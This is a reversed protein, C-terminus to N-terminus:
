SSTSFNSLMMMIIVNMMTLGGCMVIIKSFSSRLLELIYQKNRKQPINEPSIGKLRWLLRKPPGDRGRRQLITLSRQWVIYAWSIIRNDIQPSPFFVVAALTRKKIELPHRHVLLLLMCKLSSSQHM